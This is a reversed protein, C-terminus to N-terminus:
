WKKLYEIIENNWEKQDKKIKIDSEGIVEDNELNKQSNKVTFALLRERINQMMCDRKFVMQNMLSTLFVSHFMAIPSDNIGDLLQHKTPNM